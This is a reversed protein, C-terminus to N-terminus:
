PKSWPQIAPNNAIAEPDVSQLTGLVRGDHSTILSTEPYVPAFGNSATLRCDRLPHPSGECLWALRDIEDTATERGGCKSCACDVPDEAFQICSEIDYGLLTGLAIQFEYRKYKSRFMLLDLYAQLYGPKSVVVEDGELSRNYTVSYDGISHNTSSALLDYLTPAKRREVIAFNHEGNLTAQFQEWQQTEDIKM